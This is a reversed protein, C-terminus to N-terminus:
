PSLYFNHCFHINKSVDYSFSLDLEGLSVDPSLQYIFTLLILIVISIHLPSLLHAFPVNCASLLASDKTGPDM